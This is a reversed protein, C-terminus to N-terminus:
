LRPESAARVKMQSGSLARGSKRETLQPFRLSSFLANYRSSIIKEMQLHDQFVGLAIYVTISSTEKWNGAMDRVQKM